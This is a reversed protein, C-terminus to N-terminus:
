RTPPPAGSSSDASSVAAPRQWDVKPWLRAVYVRDPDIGTGGIRDTVYGIHTLGPHTSWYRVGVIRDGDREWGDFVGSHGWGAGMWMQLFDGRKAEAFPVREGVGWHTVADASGGGGAARVFWDRRFEVVDRLSMGNIPQEAGGAEASLVQMAVEWTLGVCHSSHDPSAPSLLAGLYWVDRTTGWWVGDDPPWYFGYSGDLPYGDIVRAVAASLGVGVEVHVQDRAVVVGNRLGRAEITRTGVPTSRWSLSEGPHIEGIRVGDVSLEIPDIGTSAEAAIALTHPTGAGEAPSVIHVSADPDLRVPIGKPACALLLLM